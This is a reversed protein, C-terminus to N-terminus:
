ILYPTVNGYRCRVRGRPVCLVILAVGIVLDMILTATGGGEFLFPTALLAAGLLGNLFRLPRAVEACATVSITVVLAGILHEAHAMPPTSGALLRTLMLGIGLIASVALNWPVNVGGALCDGVITKPNRDFEDKQPPEREGDDTDGAFFTTILSCGARKRRILFQATAVLEDFSYPIQVLMAAAAILCLTCWTGIVIPQIIIFFISIAGLPVIMIGFLMVLWPMTRWRRASGILGTLIELMYTMAGLGADPVPWARSVSSTIIDETGNKRPQTGAFFPEWVSDIHELQYAALYRSIFLGVFALFIIPLRQTWTSPSFDWGPPVTPGGLVAAPTVGPAPRLAVAFGVILAGVLTGELYAAADRAWFLLPAAMVYIGVAAAAWRAAAFRWSLSFAALVIIVGGAAVNSWQMVPQSYGHTIAAFILWAGLGANMFHGWRSRAHERRQREEYRRRADEATGDASELRELWHPPNLKNDRYWRLPDRKLADCIAPLTDRLRHKPRWRLLAEARSVDLEYHDSALDVMFPRIFPKEGQDIADPVIPEMREELWAGAKALPAPVTLTTGPEAHLHDAILNQLAEYSLAEPEGILIEVYEPLTARRQVACAFADVADEIHVMSQGRSKDGAFLDSKLTREYIRKIQHTLTPVGGTDSYVGALRLIACPIGGRHERIAKEAAAKSRPYAWAPEIPASEDIPLGPEGPAHVLMTSAHIFREVEFGQLADLLRATGQVNLADYLLHPEGTFDYYAALHIVAAIKKGHRETFTELAERLSGASTLDVKIEEGPSNGVVKDIGVIHYEDSLSLAIETGLLGSAGTILVIPKSESAPMRRAGPGTM